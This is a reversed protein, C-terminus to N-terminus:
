EDITQIPDVSLSLGHDLELQSALAARGFALPRALTERISREGRLVGFVATALPLMGAFVITHASTM